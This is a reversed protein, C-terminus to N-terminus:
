PRELANEYFSTEVCGRGNGAKLILRIGKGGVGMGSIGDGGTPRTIAAALESFICHLFTRAGHFCSAPYCGAPPTPKSVFELSLAV